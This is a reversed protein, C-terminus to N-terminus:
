AAGANATVAAMFVLFLALFLAWLAVRDPRASVRSATPSGRRRPPGAQGTIQVTRRASRGITEPGPPRRESHREAPRLERAGASRM